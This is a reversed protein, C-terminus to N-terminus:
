APSVSVKHFDARNLLIPSFHKDEQLIGNINSAPTDQGHKRFSFQTLM